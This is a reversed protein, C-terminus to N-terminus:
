LSFGMPAQLKTLTPTAVQVPETTDQELSLLYDATGFPDAEKIIDRRQVLDTKTEVPPQLM